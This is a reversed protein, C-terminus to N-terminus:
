VKKQRSKGTKSSEKLNKERNRPSAYRQIDGLGQM